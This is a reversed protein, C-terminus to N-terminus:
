EGGAWQLQRRVADAVEDPSKVRLVDFGAAKASAEGTASDEVVLPRSAGLIEAAKLYPAPSPKLAGAEWGCVLTAFYPRLGAAELIPEVETRGSSSVVALPFSNLSKILEQTAAALPLEEIMMARFRAKKPEYAEVLQEIQFKGPWQAVLNAFMARDAVGVCERTYTQWDMSVGFGSLIETWCRYHVPESDVLVGDFDFLIADYLSANDITNM